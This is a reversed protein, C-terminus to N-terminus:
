LTTRLSEAGRTISVRETVKIPPRLALSSVKVSGHDIGLGLVPVIGRTQGHNLLCQRTDGVVLGSHLMLGRTLGDVLGTRRSRSM